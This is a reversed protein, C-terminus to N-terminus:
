YSACIQTPASVLSELTEPTRHEDCLPYGNGLPPRTTLGKKTPKDCIECGTWDGYSEERQGDLLYRRFCREAEERTEHAAHEHCNGAPFIQSDNMGTWHWGSGDKLKRAEYYNM